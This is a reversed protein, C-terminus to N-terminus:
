FVYARVDPINLSPFISLIKHLMEFHVGEFDYNVLVVSLSMIIMTKKIRQFYYRGPKINDSADLIERNKM